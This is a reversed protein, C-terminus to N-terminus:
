IYCSGGYRSGNTLYEFKFVPDPTTWPSQFHRRKISWRIPWEAMTLIARDRVM